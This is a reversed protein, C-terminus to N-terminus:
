GLPEVPKTKTPRSCLAPVSSSIFIKRFPVSALARAPGMHPSGMHTMCPGSIYSGWLAGLPRLGPQGGGFRSGFHNWHLIEVMQTPANPAWKPGMKNPAWKPGKKKTQPENPGMQAGNPAMKPGQGIKGCKPNNQGIKCVGTNEIALRTQPYM